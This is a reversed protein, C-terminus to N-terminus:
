AEYLAALEGITNFTVFGESFPDKNTKEELKVLVVALGLSDLPTDQLINTTEDMVVGELGNEEMAELVTEKVLEVYNHSM